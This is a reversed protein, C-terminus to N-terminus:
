GYPLRVPRAGGLAPRANISGGSVSSIRDLRRLAGAPRAVPRLSRVAAGDLESM